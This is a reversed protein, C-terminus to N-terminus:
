PQPNIIHYPCRPSLWEQVAAKPLVLLQGTPEEESITFCGKIAAM